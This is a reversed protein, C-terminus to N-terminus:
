KRLKKTRNLPHSAGRRLRFLLLILAPAVRGDVRRFLRCVRDCVADRGCLLLLGLLPQRRASSGKLLRSERGLEVLSGVPILLYFSSNRFRRTERFTFSCEFATAPRKTKSKNQDLIESFTEARKNDKNFYQIIM